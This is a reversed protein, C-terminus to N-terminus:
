AGARARAAGPSSQPLVLLSVAISEVGQAIFHGIAARTGAEDLPARRGRGQLGRARRDGRGPHRPVLPAPKNTRSINQIEDPGLGAYRGELNMMMSISDAHGRTTHLGSEGRQRHGGREPDLHHWPHIYNTQELLQQTAVGIEAALDDLVNLFGQSFDPPTIQHRRRWADSDSAVFGDTFTGGTDIGIIYDHQEKRQRDEMARSRSVVAGAACGPQRAMPEAFPNQQRGVRTWNLIEGPIWLRRAICCGLCGPFVMYEGGMESTGHATEVGLQCELLQLDEAGHGLQLAHGAGGGLQMECGTTM